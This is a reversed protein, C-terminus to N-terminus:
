RGANHPSLQRKEPAEATIVATTHGAAHQGNPLAALGYYQNYISEHMPVFFPFLPRTSEPRPLRANELTFIQTSSFVLPPDM